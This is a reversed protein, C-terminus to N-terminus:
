VTKKLKATEELESLKCPIWKIDKDQGTSGFQVRELKYDIYSNGDDVGYIESLRYTHNGKNYYVYFIDEIIRGSIVRCAYHEPQWAEIIPYKSINPNYSIKWSVGGSWSETEISQALLQKFKNDALAKDLEEQIEEEKKGEVKIEYGNGVILDVMKESILQPVGMHIKRTETDTNTWFYNMSESPQGKRYFKPAEKTYFYAIDQENGTYWISNELLRKTMLKDSQEFKMETLFPNFEMHTAGKMKLIRKDIAKNFWTMPNIVDIVRM